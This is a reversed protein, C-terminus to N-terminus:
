WFVWEGDPGHVLAGVLLADVGELRDWRVRNWRMGAWRLGDWEMGTWKQNLGPAVQTVGLDNETM